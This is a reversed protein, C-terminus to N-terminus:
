FRYGRNQFWPLFNLASAPQGAAAEGQPLGTRWQDFARQSLNESAGQLFAPLGHGAYAQALQLQEGQNNALYDRFADQQTNATGGTNFLGAGRQILGQLASQTNGATPSQLFQGFPRNAPIDGLGRQFQYAIQNPDFKSAVPAQLFGPTGPRFLNAMWARFATARDQETESWPAYAPGFPLTTM